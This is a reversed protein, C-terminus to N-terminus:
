FIDMGIGRRCVVIRQGREDNGGPWLVIPSIWGHAQYIRFLVDLQSGPHVRANEAHPTLSAIPKAFIETM